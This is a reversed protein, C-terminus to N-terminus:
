QRPHRLRAADARRTPAAAGPDGRLLGAASQRAHRAGDHSIKLLIALLIYNALLSSGGHSMFPTTLGTMPLLKSIGGTVVFVQIAMTFSLGASVLKGFSDPTRLATTFGRTVLVAFLILVAALGVFGLEEGVSSLIFDSWAVPVIQPYGEGLGTGTV